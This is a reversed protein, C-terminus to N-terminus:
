VARATCAGSGPEGLADRARLSHGADLPTGLDLYGRQGTGKVQWRITTGAAISDSGVNAIVLDTEDVRCRVVAQSEFMRTQFNAGVDGHDGFDVEPRGEYRFSAAPSSGLEIPAALDPSFLQLSPRSEVLLSDASAVSTVLSFMAAVVLRKVPRSM